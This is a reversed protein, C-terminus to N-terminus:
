PLFQLWKVLSSQLLSTPFGAGPHILRAALSPVINGQTIGSSHISGGSNSVSGATWDGLVTLLPLWVADGAMDHLERVGSFGADFVLWWWERCLARCVNSLLLLPLLWTLMGVLGAVLLQLWCLKTLELCDELFENSIRWWWAACKIGWVGLRLEIAVPDGLRRGDPDTISSLSLTTKARGDDGNALSSYLTSSGTFSGSLLRGSTIRDAVCNDILADSWSNSLVPPGTDGAAEDVDALTPKTYLSFPICM